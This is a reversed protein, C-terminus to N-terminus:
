ESVVSTIRQIEVLLYQFRLANQMRLKSLSLLHTEDMMLLGNVNGTNLSVATMTFPSRDINTVSLQGLKKIKGTLLFRDL